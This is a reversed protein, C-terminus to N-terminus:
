KKEKSMLTRGGDRLFRWSHRVGTGSLRHLEQVFFICRLNLQLRFDQAVVSLLNEVHM